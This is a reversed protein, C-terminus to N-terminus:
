VCVHDCSPGSGSNGLAAEADQDISNGPFHFQVPAAWHGRYSLSIPACRAVM